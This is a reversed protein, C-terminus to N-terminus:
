NKVVVDYNGYEAVIRFGLDLHIPYRGIQKTSIGTVWM